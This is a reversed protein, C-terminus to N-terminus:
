FKNTRKRERKRRATKGKEDSGGGGDLAIEVGGTVVDGSMCKITPRQSM